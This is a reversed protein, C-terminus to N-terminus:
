RVSSKPATPRVMSDIVGSLLPRSQEADVRLTTLQWRGTSSKPALAETCTTARVSGAQLVGPRVKVLTTVAVDDVGPPSRGGPWTVTVVSGADRSSSALDIRPRAAPVCSTGPLLTVYVSSTSFAPGVSARPATTTSVIGAAMAGLAAVPSPQTHLMVPCRTLQAVSDVRGTPPAIGGM